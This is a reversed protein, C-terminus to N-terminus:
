GPDFSLLGVFAQLTQEAFPFRAFLPSYTFVVYTQLYQGKKVLNIQGGCRQSKKFFDDELSLTYGQKKHSKINDHTVDKRFIENFSRLYNLLCSYNEDIKM